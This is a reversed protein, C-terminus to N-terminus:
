LIGDVLLPTPKMRGGSAEVVAAAERVSLFSHLKAVGPATNLQELHFPGLRLGPQGRHLLQCFLDSCLGLTDYPDTSFCSRLFIGRDRAPPRLNEGRCHRPVVALNHLNIKM